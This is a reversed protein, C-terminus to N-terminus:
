KHTIMMFLLPSYGPSPLKNYASTLLTELYGNVHSLAFLSLSSKALEEHFKELIEFSFRSDPSSPDAWDEEFSSIGM